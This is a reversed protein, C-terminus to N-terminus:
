GRGGANNSNSDFYYGPAGPVKIVKRTCRAQEVKPGASRIDLGNFRSQESMGTQVSAGNTGPPASKGKEDGFYKM